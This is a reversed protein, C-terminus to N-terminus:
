MVRALFYEMSVAETITGQKIMSDLEGILLVTDVLEKDSYKGKNWKVGNIQKEELGTNEKTPNPNLQVLMLNRFNNYLISFVQIPSDGRRKLDEWLSYSRKIDRKMVANSFDFVCDPIQCYIIGSRAFKEFMENHKDQPFLVVKDLEQLCRGYDRDCVEVLWKLYDDKVASKQKLAGILIDSALKDFSVVVGGHDKIFSSRKDISNLIVVVYNSSHKLSTIIKNDSLGSKDDKVIILKKATSLLSKSSAKNYADVLTDAYTRKVALRNEIEELYTFLLTREEGTLVLFHPINNEVIAKKLDWLQMM